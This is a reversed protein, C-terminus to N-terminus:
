PREKARVKPDTRMDQLARGVKDETAVKSLDKDLGLAALVRVYTGMSVSADGAEANRLTPRSIGARQAVAQATLKRRRRALRLREGLGVLERLELPYLTPAKSPMTSIM